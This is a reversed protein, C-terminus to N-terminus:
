RLSSGESQLFEWLKDRYFRPPPLHRNSAEISWTRKYRRWHIQARKTEYEETFQIAERRTRCRKLQKLFWQPKYPTKRIPYSM